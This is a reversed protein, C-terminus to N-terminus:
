QIQPSKKVKRWKWGFLASGLRRTWRYRSMIRRLGSYSTQKQDQKISVFKKQNLENNQNQIVGELRFLEETSCVNKSVLMNIVTELSIVDANPVTDTQKIEYNTRDLIQSNSKEPQM